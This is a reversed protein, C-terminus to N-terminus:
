DLPVVPAPATIKANVAGLREIEVTVADGPQLWPHKEAGHLSSLELLCGTGVTGSGIVDGPVLRTGRSAYALMEGFSWYMDALGADTYPRGNVTVTARLEFGNGRRRAAVEDPTVLVPGLTTASDKGKAPGLRQRMEVAQLDRASWDCMVLYGAIHQEAEAPDLDAGERGIVAALELEYDFAASGPPLAVDDRPGHVAAPNTFYFVPADYWGPDIDRRGANRVHEEFAMFDRISPPVPVPARLRAADVAVIDLPDRRAEAAADTLRDAALLDLLRPASRLGHIEGHVVLGPHERGDTGSVYTVWRM